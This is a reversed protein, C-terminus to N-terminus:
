WTVWHGGEACLMGEGGLTLTSEVFESNSVAKGLTRSHKGAKQAIPACPKRALTRRTCTCSFPSLESDEVALLVIVETKNAVVPLIHDRVQSGHQEVGTAKAWSKSWACLSPCLVVFFLNYGEAQFFLDIRNSDSLFRYRHLCHSILSLPPLFSSNFM